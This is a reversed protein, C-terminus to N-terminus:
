NKFDSSSAGLSFHRLNYSFTLMFYRNLVNSQKDEIYLENVNRRVNTNQNLLDFANLSVEGRENKFVKKGVSMNLLMFSKGIGKTLGTNLQHNLEMRYVFGNGFIWNYNVRTNLNFYNNNLNPRLSNSVLNYSGNTSINFDLRDSINSSSSVGARFRTSNTFNIVENVMGPSHSFEVGGNLSVNSRIVDIPLGYNFYSKVRWYGNLNVPRTLQAGKELFISDGLDIREEAIFSSTSIRNNDFNSQVYAVFSHDTDSNTSKYRIRFRNSYSQVLNPNGSRLQLPNSNNIVNQLESVSPADTRTDYDIELIQSPKFKYDIRLTPRFNQFTRELYDERPFHQSNKLTATEYGIEAQLKFKDDSYQYGLESEQALYTSNFVNSLATDLAAIFDGSNEDLDLNSLRQDSDEIRNGIEYEFKLRGQNGLPETYSFDAEWSLGKRSKLRSQNLNEVQEEPNYYINEAERLGKEEDIHTGSKIGITATRGAKNFRKNYYISNTFDLNNSIASNTNTSQNVLEGQQETMGKFSSGEVDTEASVKSVVLFQNNSNINYNLRLDFAHERNRRVNSSEEAYRQDGGNDLLYDRVLTAYEKNTRDLYQYSTNLQLKDFIMDSYNLGISNYKIIGNQPKTDGMSNVEGSYDVANVNNSLGTITLRQDNQFANLSMGALYRDNSGYGTTIKGFQGTRFAPNTIINITKEREGDDFGSFSAKDSLKDYIQISEVAEAPLNQLAAKVDTGFFPKGDVYIQVITEGQAQLVGDMMNIGPIKELLRQSSADKLTKFANANFQTTDGKQSGLSRRASVTVENLDTLAEAIEINGLDLDSNQLSISKTVTQYGIYIAEMRYDGTKLNKIEFSGNLDTITGQVMSSDSNNLIVISVGQLYFNENKDLIKGKISQANSIIALLFAFQFLLYRLPKM